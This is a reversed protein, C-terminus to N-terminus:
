ATAIAERRAAAVAADKGNRLYPGDAVAQQYTDIVRDLITSWRFAKSAEIAQRTMDRLRAPDDMLAEVADAYAGADRAPVLLGTRGEEVLARAAPADASVLAVGSAMAELNVNGFAETTSPNILVDASAVARALAAGEVHGTFVADGIRGAMDDGAPGAGVILPRVKRGRQRLTTVVEEFVDLGKEKVLRGFFLVITEDDAYGHARRWAMDRRAPNWLNHDVGRSWIHVHDGLGTNRRLDEALLENPALVYDCRAYFRNLYREGMPRLFDLGYYTLYTQFLTHLSAIVPIGLEVAFKQAKRGLIDPASVHIVNPAFARIDAKVRMSMGVALRYEPRTPIAVSRVSVLDGAPEFGPKPITPSYVRVEAGHDLLYRVLRNLAKNAGDRVMNYNGSFLAIRLGAAKGGLPEAGETTIRSMDVVRGIARM